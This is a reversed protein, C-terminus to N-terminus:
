HMICASHAVKHMEHLLGTRWLHGQDDSHRKKFVIHWGAEEEEALSGREGSKLVVRPTASQPVNQEHEQDLQITDGARPEM